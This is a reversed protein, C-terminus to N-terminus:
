HYRSIPVKRLEDIVVEPGLEEILMDCEYDALYQGAVRRTIQRLRLLDKPDLELVFSGPLLLPNNRPDSM